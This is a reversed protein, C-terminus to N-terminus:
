SVNQWRLREKRERASSPVCLYPVGRAGIEARRRVEWDFRELKALLVACQISDMRGGVGIRATGGNATPVNDSM